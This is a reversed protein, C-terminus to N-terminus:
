NDTTTGVIVTLDRGVVPNGPQSPDNWALADGVGGRNTSCDSKHTPWQWQGQVTLTFSGDANQVVGGTTAGPIPDPADALATAPYGFCLLVGLVVTRCVTIRTFRHPAM